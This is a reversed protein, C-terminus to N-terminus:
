VGVRSLDCRRHSSRLALLPSKTTYGKSGKVGTFAEELYILVRRGVKAGDWQGEMGSERRRM